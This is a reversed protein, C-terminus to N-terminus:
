LEFALAAELCNPLAIGTRYNGALRLGPNNREIAEMQELHRGHGLKYQPIAREWYKHHVFTPEGNVGLLARLDPRATKLVTETEPSALHPQREGGIFVALLVQSERARDPFVSAPFLVGLISRNEREPVLMGFGDLAHAVANRPFALTLVSLPPYDIAALSALQEPLPQPFPLRSLAFAPTTAIIQDFTDRHERNEADRWRFSWRANERKIVEPTIGTQVHGGLQAAILQPLEALGDPFSITRPRTNTGSARRNDRMRALSGRILSGHNQELAHLKPFGHRLSLEEPNGAYIGGVLPNIAYEYLEDGLRRRVFDAVSEEAEPPAPRIFPEAFVRLKGRPSWLRTGIASLPGSPVPRPQGNRVIWRKGAAPGAEVIRGSAGPLEELFNRVAPTKVLISHPGEEALYGDRRHSRIAGGVKQETEFVTCNHGERRLKWAITLGTIGAGLIAVEAM